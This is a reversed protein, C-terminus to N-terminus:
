PIPLYTQGEDNVDGRPKRRELIYEEGRPTLIYMVGGGSQVGEVRCARYLPCGSCGSPLRVRELYGERVASELVAEITGRAIGLKKAIAEVDLGKGMLLLMKKIM